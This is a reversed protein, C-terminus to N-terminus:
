NIFEKYEEKIYDKYKSLLDLCDKDLNNHRAINLKYDLPRLNDLSNVIHCPTEPKFLTVHVIHDIHWSGYNDWSMGDSFMKEIYEKFDVSSYKLLNITKDHKKMKIRDLYGKLVSRWAKVHPNKNRNIYASKNRCLRCVKKYRGNKNTLYQDLSHENNCKSCCIYGRNEIEETIKDYKEKKKKKNENSRNFNEDGYKEKLTLKNKFHSCTNSCSYINYKEINKNYKQYILLKEFGCVDCKVNVKLTSKKPLHEIKIEICDGHKIDYGLERYYNINNSIINVKISKDLIM